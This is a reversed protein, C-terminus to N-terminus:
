KETDFAQFDGSYSIGSRHTSNVNITSFSNPVLKAAVTYTETNNDMTMKLRYGKSKEDKELEMKKPIGDFRIANDLTNYGGGIQRDGYYPLYVSLSDGIVRLYGPNDLLNIRSPTDEPALLGANALATLSNLSVPRAWRAKIEYNGNHVLDEFAKYEEPTLESVSSSSGCGMMTLVAIMWITKKM